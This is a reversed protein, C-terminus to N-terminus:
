LNIDAECWGKIANAISSMKDSESIFLGHDKLQQVQEEITLVNKKCMSNPKLFPRYLLRCARPRQESTYRPTYQENLSLCRNEIKCFYFLLNIIIFIM